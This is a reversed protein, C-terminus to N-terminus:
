ILILDVLEGIELTMFPNDSAQLVKEEVKQYNQLLFKQVANVDEGIFAIKGSIDKVGYQTGGVIVSRLTIPINLQTDLIIMAVQNANPGFVTLANSTTLGAGIKLRNALTKSCLPM